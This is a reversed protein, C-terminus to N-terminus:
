NDLIRQTVVTQASMSSVITEKTKSDYLVNLIGSLYIEVRPQLYDNNSLGLLRFSFNDVVFDLSTLTIDEIKSYVNTSNNKVYSAVNISHNELDSYFVIRSSPNEQPIVSIANCEGDIVRLQSLFNYNDLDANKFNGTVNACRYEKGFKIERSIFDMVMNINDIALRSASTRKYVKEAASLISLSGLTIISFITTAVMLEVLTFGNQNKQINIKKFIEKM